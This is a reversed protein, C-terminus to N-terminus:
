INIAFWKCIKNKFLLKFKYNLYLNVPKPLVLGPNCTRVIGKLLQIVKSRWVEYIERDWLIPSIIIDIWLTTILISHALVYTVTTPKCKTNLHWFSLSVKTRKGGRQCPQFVKEHTNTGMGLIKNLFTEHSILLCFRIHIM